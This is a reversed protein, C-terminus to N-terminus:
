REQRSKLKYLGSRSISKKIGVERDKEKIFMLNVVVRDSCASREKKLRVCSVVSVRRM